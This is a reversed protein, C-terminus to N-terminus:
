CSPAGRSRSPAAEQNDGDIVASAYAQVVGAPTGRDYRSGHRIALLVGAVCRLM